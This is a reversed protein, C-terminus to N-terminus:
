SSPNPNRATAKDLPSAKRDLMDCVSMLREVFHGTSDTFIMVGERTPSETKAQFSYVPWVVIRDDIITFGTTVYGPVVRLDIIGPSERQIAFCDDFHKSLVTDTKLKRPVSNGRSILVIRRLFPRLFSGKVTKAKYDRVRQTIADYYEKRFIQAPSSEPILVTSNAWTEVFVLSTHADEILQNVRKFILHEDDPSGTELFEAVLGFQNTLKEIAGKVEQHSSYLILTFAAVYLIVAGLVIAILRPGSDIRQDLGKNFAFSVIIGAVFTAAPVLQAKLRVRM